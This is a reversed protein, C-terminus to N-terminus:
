FPIEEGTPDDREALVARHWSVSLVAV